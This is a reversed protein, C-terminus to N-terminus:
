VAIFIRLVGEKASTFGSAGHWLLKRYIFIVQLSSWFYKTLSFELEKAWEEQKSGSAEALLIAM